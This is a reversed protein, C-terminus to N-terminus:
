FGFSVGVYGMFSDRGPNSSYLSANSIHHWRVGTMLRTDGGLDFSAGIGAQPTFNFQSGHTPVDETALFIGAGAEGYLSWTEQPLFHWRILLNFNGAFADDGRQSVHLGNLEADFSLNDIVFYSIGIGALLFTNDSTKIDMAGAGHIQWRWTGKSGFDSPLTFTALDVVPEDFRLQRADTRVIECSIEEASAAVVVKLVHAVLLSTWM